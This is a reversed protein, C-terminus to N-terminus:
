AGWTIPPATSPGASQCPSEAIVISRVSWIGPIVSSAFLRFAVSRRPRALAIMCSIMASSQLSSAVCSLALACSILSRLSRAFRIAPNVAESSISRCPPVPSLTTAMSPESCVRAPPPVLRSSKPKSSNGSMRGICSCILSCARSTRRPKPETRSKRRTACPRSGTSTVFGFRAANWRLTSARFRSSCVITVPPSRVRAITPVAPSTEPPENRSGKVWTCDIKESAFTCCPKSCRARAKVTGPRESRM